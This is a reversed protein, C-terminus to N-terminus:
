NGGNKNNENFYDKVKLFIARTIFLAAIGIIVCSIFGGAILVPIMNSLNLNAFDFIASNYSGAFLAISVTVVICIVALIILLMIQSFVSKNKM